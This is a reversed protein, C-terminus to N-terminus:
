KHNEEFQKYAIGKGIGFYLDHIQDWPVGTVVCEDRHSQIAKEVSQYRALREKADFYGRINTIPISLVMSAGLVLGALGISKKIKM